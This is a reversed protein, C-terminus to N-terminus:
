AEIANQRIFSEADALATLYTDILISPDNKTIGLRQRVTSDKLTMRYIELKNALDDGPVIVHSRVTYYDWKSFHAVVEGNRRLVIRGSIFEFEDAEIEQKPLGGVWVTYKKM